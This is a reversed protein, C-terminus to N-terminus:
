AVFLHWFYGVHLRRRYKQQGLLLLSVDARVYAAIIFVFVTYQLDTHISRCGFGSKKFKLSDYRANMQNSALENEINGEFKREMLSFLEQLIVQPDLESLTYSYEGLVKLYSLM